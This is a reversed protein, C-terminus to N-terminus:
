PRISATEPVALKNTSTCWGFQRALLIRFVSWAYVAGLAMHLFIGATAIAWRSTGRM